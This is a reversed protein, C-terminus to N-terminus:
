QFAVAAVRRRVNGSYFIQQQAERAEDLLHRFYALQIQIRDNSLGRSLATHDDVRADADGGRSFFKGFRDPKFQSVLRLYLKLTQWGGPYKKKAEEDSVATVIIAHDGHKWNVPAAVQYL